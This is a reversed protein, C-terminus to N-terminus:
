FIYKQVRYVICYNCSEIQFHIEGFYHYIKFKKFVLINKKLNSVATNCLELVKWLECVVGKGKGISGGNISNFCLMEDAKKIWKKWFLSEFRLRPDHVLSNCSCTFQLGFTFQLFFNQALEALLQCVLGIKKGCNVKLRCNM